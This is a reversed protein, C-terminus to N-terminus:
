KKATSPATTPAATTPAAAAAPVTAQMNAPPKVTKKKSGFWEHFKYSVEDTSCRWWGGKKDAALAVLPRSTIVKGDVNLNVTGLQQGKAVPAKIDANMVVNVTAKQFDGRPLTVYFSKLVGAPISKNDGFWIRPTAVVNNAQYILNTQYFRFGYELLRISDTSRAEDTPTGLVVSVLRMGNQDAEAILCYGAESTHGTKMGNAAPYRWLLRNRNPQRIHNYTLWKQGYWSHYEPFELWIARALKALDVATSYHEKAPLGTPDTYHSNTMGLVRAQQNMMSVFNPIAGGVYQATAMTADNGSDVIIGEILKNLPVQTGVKVFMRSGGTKWAKKSIMVKDNIKIVGSKLARSTLYLTMLKTLSAPPHKANMNKSAIIDGSDVDMLVYAKANINPASPILMPQDARTTMAPNEIPAPAAQTSIALGLSLTLSFATILRTLRTKRM